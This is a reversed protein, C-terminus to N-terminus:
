ASYHEMKQYRLVQIYEAHTILTRTLAQVRDDLAELKPDDATPLFYQSSTRWEVAAKGQDVDKRSVLLYRDSKM